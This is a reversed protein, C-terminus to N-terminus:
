VRETTPLTLHTYSVPAPVPAPAPPSLQPSSPRSIELLGLDALYSIITAVLGPSLGTANAIGAVDRSGDIARLVRIVNSDLLVEASSARLDPISDLPLDVDTREQLGPMEEPGPGGRKLEERLMSALRAALSILVGDLVQGELALALSESVKVVVLSSDRRRLKRLSYDGINGTSSIAKGLKRALALVPGPMSTFIISGDGAIISAGLIRPQERLEATILQGLDM